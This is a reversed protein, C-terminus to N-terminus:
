KDPNFQAKLRDYASAAEVCDKLSVRHHSTLDFKQFLTLEIRKLKNMLRHQEIEIRKSIELLPFGQGLIVGLIIVASIEGGGFWFYSAVSQVLFAASGFIMTYLQYREQKSFDLLVDEFGVQISEWFENSIDDSFIDKEFDPNRDFFKCCDNKLHETTKTQDFLDSSLQNLFSNKQQTLSLCELDPESAMASIAVVLLGICFRIM